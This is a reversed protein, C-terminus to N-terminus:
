ARSARPPNQRLWQDVLNEARHAASTYWVDGHTAKDFGVLTLVVAGQQPPFWVILRIATDPHFPHGVRWLEHRKAQRVRKLIATDEDPEADLEIVVRFLQRLIRRRIGGEADITNLFVEFESTWEVRM